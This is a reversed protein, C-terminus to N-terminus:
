EDFYQIFVNATAKTSFVSLFKGEGISFLPKNMDPKDPIQLPVGGKVTSVMKSARLDLVMKRNSTAVVSARSPNSISVSAFWAKVTIADTVSAAALSIFTIWRKMGTPVQGGITIQSTDSTVMKQATQLEINRLSM